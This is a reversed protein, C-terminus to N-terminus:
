EKIRPTEKTEIHKPEALKEQKAENIGLNQKVSLINKNFIDFSLGGTVFKGNLIFSPVGRLGLKNALRNNDLIIKNFEEGRSNLIAKVDDIKLGIQLVVENLTNANRPGNHSLVASYFNYYKEPAIANVALGYRASLNSYEGLIPFEKFVFRVDSHEEVLKQLIPRARKCYNCAYDFFQVVTIQADKPGMSPDAPNNEYEDRYQSLNNNLEQQQRQEQKIHHQKIANVVLEPKEEFLRTLSDELNDESVFRASVADELQNISYNHYAFGLIALVAIVFIYLGIIRQSMINQKKRNILCSLTLEVM